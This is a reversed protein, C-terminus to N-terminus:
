LSTERSTLGSAVTTVTPPTGIPPGPSTTTAPGQATSLRSCVTSTARRTLSAPAWRSRPPAKLGRM